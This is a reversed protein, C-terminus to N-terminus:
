PALSLNLSTKAPRKTITTIPTAVVCNILSKSARMTCHFAHYGHRLNRTVVCAFVLKARGMPMVLASLCAIFGLPSITQM